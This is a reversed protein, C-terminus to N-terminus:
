STGLGAPHSQLEQIAKVVQSDPQLNEVYVVQTPNLTIPGIPADAQASRAVLRGAPYQQTAPTLYYPSSIQLMDGAATVKGYYVLGGSLYVGQYKSSDVGAVLARATQAQTDSTNHSAIWAAGGLSLASGAVVVAVLTVLSPAPASDRSVRTGDSM